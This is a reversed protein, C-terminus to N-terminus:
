RIVNLLCYELIADHPKERHESMLGPLMHRPQGYKRTVITRTHVSKRTSMQEGGMLQLSGGVLLTQSIARLADDLGAKCLLSRGRVLPRQGRIM